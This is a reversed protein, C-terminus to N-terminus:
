LLPSETSTRSSGLVCSSTVKNRSGYKKKELGGHRQFWYRTGDANQMESFMEDIRVSSSMSRTNKQLVIFTVDKSDEKTSTPNKGKSSSSKVGKKEEVTGEDQNSTHRSVESSSVEKQKETTTREEKGLCMPVDGYIHRLMQRGGGKSISHMKQQQKTEARKEDRSSM